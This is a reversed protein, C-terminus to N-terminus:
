DLVEYVEINKVINIKKNRHAVNPVCASKTCTTGYQNKGTIIFDAEPQLRRTSTVIKVFRDGRKLTNFDVKVAMHIGDHLGIKEICTITNTM